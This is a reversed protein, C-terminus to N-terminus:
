AAIHPRPSSRAPWLSRRAVASPVLARRPSLLMELYLCATVLVCAELIWLCDVRYAEVTTTTATQVVTLAFAFLSASGAYLRLVLRPQPQMRRWARFGVILFLLTVLYHLAYPNKTPDWQPRPPICALASTVWPSMTM